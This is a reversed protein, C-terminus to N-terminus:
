LRSLYERADSLDNKWFVMYNLDNDIAFRRKLLDRETWVRIATRYYSSGREMSRNIWNQLVVLDDPNTEDFWHGGHSWHANLEIFLDQSKIYFDCHFPYRDDDVHQGDVDSEGFVDCLLKFLTIEPKSTNFTGNRRKTEWSKKLMEAREEETFVVYPVGYREILSQLMKKRREDDIYSKACERGQETQMYHMGYVAEYGAVIRARMEDSSMLEHLCERGVDSQTWFDTGYKAQCTQKMKELKGENVIIDHLCSRGEESGAWTTAGYKNLCTAAKADKVDQRHAVNCEGRRKLGARAHGCKPCDHGLVVHSHPTQMFSGHVPCVIEVPVDRRQYVVYTYDYKDGHVQRAREIFTDRGLRTRNRGCFLCGQGALHKNPTKEFVGHEPCIIKVKVNSKKYEVLSYDYKGHYIDNAKAVFDAQSCVRGM